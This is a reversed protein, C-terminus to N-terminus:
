SSPAVAVKVMAPRLLRGKFNYGQQYVQLVTQDPLDGTEARDVAQHVNPDFPQGECEVLELGAKKLADLLRQYILEIGKRYDLDGNEAPPPAKMAREFDDLIPLLVRVTEAGAYEAFEARERESRRRFNEFEAQRRLLLDQLDAKEAALQDRDATVAALSDALGEPTPVIDVAATESVEPEQTVQNEADM